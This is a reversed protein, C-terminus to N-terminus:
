FPIEEDGEDAPADEAGQGSKGLFQVRDATIKLSARLEGEQNKWPRASIRSSVVQVMQGQELYQNCAEAQKDWVSVDYWTTTEQKEGDANKYVSNVAVPFNTVAKGNELFRMEPNKGLRGTIIIQQFM